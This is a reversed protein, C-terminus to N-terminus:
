KYLTWRLADVANREPGGLITFPADSQDFLEPAWTSTVRVRYDDGATITEPVFLMEIAQGEPNWPSGWDHILGQDNWLEIDVSSGAFPLSTEWHVPQLTNVNWTEGGNPAHVKVAGGTITFPADSDDRLSPDWTSVVRLRYDGAEPMLPLYVPATNEGDPDWDYGLSSIKGQNNRLEFEVSTGARPVHTRWGVNLLKGGQIREHGNPYIVTVASYEYLLFTRLQLLLVEVNGDADFDATRIDRPRYVEAFLNTAYVPPAGGRNELYCVKDENRFQAKVFLDIDGDQDLDCPELRGPVFRTEKIVYSTFRNQSLVSEGGRNEYYVIRGMGFEAVRSKYSVLLDPHGDSNVDDMAFGTPALGQTNTFESKIFRPPDGGTNELLGVTLDCCYNIVMDMDGDGDLDAAEITYIQSADTYPAIEFRRFTPTMGGENLYGVIRISEHSTAAVIDLRGDANLDVCTAGKLWRFDPDIVHERFEPTTGDINEQWVLAYEPDQIETVIDPDGDGDLDGVTIRDNYEKGGEGFRFSSARFGLALDGYFAYVRSTTRSMTLFDLLGDRDLDLVHIRYSFNDVDGVSHPGLLHKLYASKVQLEVDSQSVPQDFGEQLFRLTGDYIGAVLHKATETLDVLMVQEAGPQLRGNAPTPMLWSHSASTAWEIAKETPNTIRYSLREPEFPGGEYGVSEAGVLSEVQILREDDLLCNEHWYLNVDGRNLTLLDVDGDYDLDSPILDVPRYITRFLSVEFRDEQRGTNEHYWITDGNGALVFLDHDGDGDPDAPQVNFIEDGSGVELPYATFTGGEVQKLWILGNYNLFIAALDQLGDGDLEAAEVDFALGQQQYLVRREFGPPSAGDNELLIISGTIENANQETGHALLIDQDGDGDLDTTILQKIEEGEAFIQRTTFGPTSSGDNEYWRVRAPLVIASVIDLDGDGDLDTVRNTRGFRHDSDVIHTTFMMGSGDRSERWVLLHGGNIGTAVIDLDGDGDLDGLSFNGGYEHPVDVEHRTYHPEFGVQREFWFFRAINDDSVVVDDRGDGNLDALAFHFSNTMQGSIPQPEGFELTWGPWASAVFSLISLGIRGTFSRYIPKPWM